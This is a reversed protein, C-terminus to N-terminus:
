EKALLQYLARRADHLIKLAQEADAPGGAVVVQRTALHLQGLADRLAGGAENGRALGHLLEGDAQQRGEPTLEYVKRGGAESSGILAQEELLQLSPYVSGPSPRWRGDSKEELRRMLEYGHAPGSLLAALLLNRTDGRRMRGGPGREGPEPRSADDGPM